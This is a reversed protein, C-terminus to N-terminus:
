PTLSRLEPDPSPWWRAVAAPDGAEAALKARGIGLPDCPGACGELPPLTHPGTFGLDWPVGQELRELLAVVAPPAAPDTALGSAAARVAIPDGAVAVARALARLRLAVTHDHPDLRTSSAGEDIWGMAVESPGLGLWREVVLREFGVIALDLDFKYRRAVSAAKDFQVRALGLQGRGAFAQAAGSLGRLQADAPLRTIRELLEDVPEGRALRVRLLERAVDGPAGRQDLLATLEVEAAALDGEGALLRARALRLHLDDPAAATCADLAARATPWDGRDLAVTVRTRDVARRGPVQAAFRALARDRDARSAFPLTTAWWGLVWDDPNAALWEDLSAARVRASLLLEAREHGIAAVAAKALEEEAYVWRGIARSASASVLEAQADDLPALVWSVKESAEEPRGDLFLQEADRLMRVQHDEVEAITPVHPPPEVPPTSPPRPATLVALIAIAALLAGGAVWPWRSRRPPPP